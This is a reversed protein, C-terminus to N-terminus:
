IGSGNASLTLSLKRTGRLYRMLHLLKACNETTPARVRTTLFKTSTCTDPRERRTAYLTKAVIKHFDMFKDQDLKKCDENIVFINNPNASSKTGKGKPYAKDFATIIEAIYSLMTIRVKGSVTYDLTMVLYKHVKGQIVSIKGSGNDFIIEYEQQLWKLMRGNSKRERHIM